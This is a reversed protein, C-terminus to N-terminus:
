KIIQGKYYKELFFGLDARYGIGSAETEM